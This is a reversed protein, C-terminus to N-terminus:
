RPHPRARREPDPDDALEGFAADGPAPSRWWRQNFRNLVAQVAQEPSDTCTLLDLDFAAIKGSALMVERVWGLLGGWYQTNFLVVPFDRVKRTQILTLAEFLEDLTGFGGPFIIFGESYKVFMTKRVFFYRFTISLDVYANLSQEFPLEINCGVSLGNGERAGRNAAEMIGPGGGTITAFGSLALLRGVERAAQYDPDSEVTRASGFVSIAPGVHTLRDFGDVFEGTMRMIRWPDTHTFDTGETIRPAQLLREDDTRGNRSPHLGTERRERSVMSEHTGQGESDGVETM